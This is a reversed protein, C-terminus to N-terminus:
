IVRSLVCNTHIIVDQLSLRGSNRFHAGLITNQDSGNHHKEGGSLLSRRKEAFQCFPTEMTTAMKRCSRFKNEFKSDYNAFHASRAGGKVCPGNNPFVASDELLGYHNCVLSHTVKRRIPLASDGYHNGDAVCLLSIQM